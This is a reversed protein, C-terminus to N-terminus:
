EIFFVRLRYFERSANAAAGPVRQVVEEHQGSVEAWVDAEGVAVPAWAQLDASAELSFGVDLLGPARLYRIEWQANERRLRPLHEGAPENRGLGLAYRLLNSLGDGGPESRPGSISEDEREAPSFQGEKWAAYFQVSAPEEQVFLADRPSDIAVTGTFALSEDFLCIADAGPVIALVRGAPGGRVATVGALSSGDPLDGPFFGGLTRDDGRLRVVAPFLGGDAALLAGDEEVALGRPTGFRNPLLAVSHSASLIQIRFVRGGAPDSALLVTDSLLAIGGIVQVGNGSLAIERYPAAAGEEFFLIGNGRAALVHGDSRFEFATADALQPSQLYAGNYRYGDRSFRLLAGDNRLAFLDSGPGMRLARFAGSAIVQKKEGSHADLRFVGSEGGAVLDVGATAM